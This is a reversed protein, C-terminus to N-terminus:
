AEVPYPYILRLLHDLRTMDSSLLRAAERGARVLFDYQEAAPRTSAARLLNAALLQEGPVGSASLVMRFYDFYSTVEHMEADNCLYVPVLSIPPRPPLAQRIKGDIDRYGIALISMEVPAIRHHRQDSITEDSVADALVLQRVLPDDDIHIDYMLGYVTDRQDSSAHAKVVMGFALADIQNLSAGASYGVTSSRLVYAIPSQTWDPTM